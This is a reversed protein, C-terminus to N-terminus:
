FLLLQQPAPPSPQRNVLTYLTKRIVALETDTPDPAIQTYYDNPIDYHHKLAEAAEPAMDMFPGEWSWDDDWLVFSELTEFLSRWRTTDDCDPQPLQDAPDPSPIGIDIEKLAGLVLRRWFQMDVEPEINPDDSDIEIEVCQRINEYIAGVAAENVACLSPPPVDEAFLAKGVHALLALRQSASLSDFLPIGFEWSEPGYQEEDILHVIHGLSERILAAEAGRLTREGISTRWM